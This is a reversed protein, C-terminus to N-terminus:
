PVTTSPRHISWKSSFSTASSAKGKMARKQFVYIDVTSSEGLTTRPLHVMDRAIVEMGAQDILEFFVTETPHRVKTAMVVKASERPSVLASLTSVLSSASSSNYICDSLIILDFSQEEVARPLAPGWELPQFTVRSQDAATMKLRNLEILEQAEPMDTLVMDCGPYAQAFAIGTIGTGSGLEIM